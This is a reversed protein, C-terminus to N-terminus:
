PPTSTRKLLAPTMGSPVASVWWSLSQSRTICTLRFPIKRRERAATGRMISRPPSQIMM